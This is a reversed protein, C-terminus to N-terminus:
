FEIGKQAPIGKEFPHKVAQMDTVLDASETLASSADRGTVVIHLPQPRNRLTQIVEKEDIMDLKIPYTLEDLIIIDYTNSAIAEKAIHWGKQAAMRDQEIDKSKWTFGRGTVHFDVLDSFRKMSELEGYKWSGKIFQVVCVRYGHGLARLCLGLAATTKGKGNGTFVLLLGKKEASEM